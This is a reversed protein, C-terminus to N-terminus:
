IIRNNYHFKKSPIKRVYEKKVYYANEALLIMAMDSKSDTYFNDITKEGCVERFRVAKERGYCNEGQIKGTGMDMKTGICRQGSLGNLFSQVLPEPSATIILDDVKMQGIYWRKIKKRNKKVFCEIQYVPNDLRQLFSFFIEKCEKKEMKGFRYSLYAKCMRPLLGALRPNKGLAFLFFDVSCDGDYITKDFDYVNM